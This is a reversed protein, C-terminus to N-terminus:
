STRKRIYESVALRIYDSMSIGLTKADEEIKRKLEDDVKFCITIKPKM